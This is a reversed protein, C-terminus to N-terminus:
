QQHFFDQMVCYISFIYIYIYKWIEQPKPIYPGAPNTDDGTSYPLHRGWAEGGQHQLLEAQIQLQVAQRGNAFFGQPKGNDNVQAEAAEKAPARRYTECPM